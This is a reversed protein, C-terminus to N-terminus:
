FDCDPEGYSPFCVTGGITCCWNQPTAFLRTVAWRDSGFCSTGAKVQIDHSGGPITYTRTNGLSIGSSSFSKPVDEYNIYSITFYATVAGTCKVSIIGKRSINCETATYDTTYGMKAVKNDKLFKVTYAIPVGPNSKSYVANGGTLMPELDGFNQATVAQSATDANGGITVIDITSNQLIKKYKLAIDAAVSTIGTSYKMAGEVETTSASETTVMRFMIIRGYSVSHVYGPPEAGTFTSKIQGLDVSPDFVAGPQPPTDFTVTYFVQKFTMMAVKSTSSSTYNFQSSVSGSAWKVNLGLDLALQQSSFSTAANYSSNSANVYGDIYKNNNWYDLAKDIETQTNSNSPEKVVITGKEGIGPLDIRLTTPAPKLTVPEPMGDLLGKNIKVLAGPWIIGNTPRIIAVQEANQQLSYKVEVCVKLDENVVSKDTLTDTPTKLLGGDINQVELMANPDYNLGRVYESIELARGAFDIDKKCAFVVFLMVIFAFVSLSLWRYSRLLLVFNTLNKKKM